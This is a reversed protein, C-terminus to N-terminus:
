RPDLLWGRRIVCGNSRVWDLEIKCHSLTVYNLQPRSLLQNFTKEEFDIDTMQIMRIRELRDLSNLLSSDIECKTLGLSHVKSLKKALDGSLGIEELVVSNVTAPLSFKKAAAPTFECRALSLSTLNALEPILEVIDDTLKSDEITLGTVPQADRILNLTKAEPQWDAPAILAVSAVVQRPEVVWGSNQPSDETQTQASQASLVFRRNDEISNALIKEIKLITKRRDSRPDVHKGSKKRLSALDEDLPDSFELRADLGVRTRVQGQSSVEFGLQQLEAIADKRRQAEWRQQLGSIQKRIDSNQDGYLLQLIGASKLFVKENGRTSITELIRKIRWNSEASCHFFHIAVPKISQEGLEILDETAKERVLFKKNDLLELLAEIDSVSRRTSTQSSEDNIPKDQDAQNLITQHRAPAVTLPNQGVLVPPPHKIAPPFGIIAQGCAHSLPLILM